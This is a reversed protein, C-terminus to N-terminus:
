PFPVQAKFKTDTSTIPTNFYAEFAVAPTIGPLTRIKAEVYDRPPLYEVSYAPGKARVLIKAKGAEGAKLRVKLKKDASTFFYGKSTQKWNSGAPVTAGFLLRGAGTEPDETFPDFVCFEYGTAATPDGFDSHEIAQYSIWKWKALDISTKKLQVISTSADQNSHGDYDEAYCGTGESCRKCAGCVIDAGVQCVGGLCTEGVQCDYGDDCGAGDPKTTALCTGAQCSETTCSDFDNCVSDDPLTTGVCVGDDCADDITCQNDDNCAPGTVNNSTCTGAGDCTESTCQNDDGFFCLQGLPDFECVPNCCDGTERDGADCDENAIADIVNNGCRFGNVGGILLPSGGCSFSMNFIRQNLAAMGNSFTITGCGGGGPGSASYAGTVPDITGSANVAPFGPCSGTIALATGSQVFTLTCDFSSGFVIFVRASWPGSMDVQAAVPSALGAVVLGMM